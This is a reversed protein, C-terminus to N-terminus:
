AGPPSLIELGFKKAIEMVRPVDQQQQSSLASKRSSCGKCNKYFKVQMGRYTANITLWITLHEGRNNFRVNAASASGVRRRM